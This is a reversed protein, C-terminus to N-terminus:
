IKNPNLHSIHAMQHAAKNCARSIFWFQCMDFKSQFSQIEKIIMGLYSRDVKNKTNVLQMVKENDGEFIVNRFGCQLVGNKWSLFKM